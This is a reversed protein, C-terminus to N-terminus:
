PAVGWILKGNGYLAIKDNYGLAGANYSYDNTVDVAGQYNGTHATVRVNFQDNQSSDGKAALTGTFSLEFYHDAGPAAPSAAVAKGTM